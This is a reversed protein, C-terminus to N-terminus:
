KHKNFKIALKAVQSSGFKHIRENDESFKTIGVRECPEVKSGKDTGTDNNCYEVDILDDHECLSICPVTLRNGSKKFERTQSVLSDDDKLIHANLWSESTAISM